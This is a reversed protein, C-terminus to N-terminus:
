SSNYFNKLMEFFPVDSVERIMLNPVVIKAIIERLSDGQFLGRHIQKSVLSSLFRISTTALVDHKPQMSVGLLLHWVLGTFAQLHPLFPEEDKDAYLYLNDIIAAQAKDVVSPETEEEDDALVPNRYQLYKAFETMWEGMHDEFYEPLDQYNLSYFIRCMTRLAEFRPTLNNVEGAFADIQKGLQQFLLLLPQQLFDLTYKIDKYLADSREVFRFRKLISNATLLVGNLVSMDQSEFKGILSPLLNTWKEPFDVFAILSVAESCQNRIQSPVTCMLEVLNSKILERDSLSIQITADQHCRM